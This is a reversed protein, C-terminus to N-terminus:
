RESAGSLRPTITLLKLILSIHTKTEMEARIVLKSIVSSYNIEEQFTEKYTFSTQNPPYSRQSQLQAVQDVDQSQWWRATHHYVFIKPEAGLLGKCLSKPAPLKHSTM